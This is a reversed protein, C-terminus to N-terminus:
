NVINLLHENFIYKSLYIKHIINGTKLINKYRKFIKRKNVAKNSKCTYYM